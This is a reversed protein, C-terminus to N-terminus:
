PFLYLELYYIFGYPNLLVIIRMKKIKSSNIMTTPTRRGDLTLKVQLIRRMIYYDIGLREFLGKFRDLFKM